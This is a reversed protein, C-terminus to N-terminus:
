KNNKTYLVFQYELDNQKGKKIITKNYRTKDFFPFFADAKKDEDEIETLYLEKTSPLFRRYIEGGGCIFFKEPANQWREIFDDVEDIIEVEPLEMKPHKDRFDQQMTKVIRETEAKHRTVIYHKRGLLLGPLSRLTKVGMVVNGDRTIEKFYKLDEPLHWILGGRKGLEGNKGVAAIAIFM